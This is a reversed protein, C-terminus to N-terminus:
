GRNALLLAAAFAIFLWFRPTADTSAVETAADQMAGGPGTYFVSGFAGEATGTESAGSPMPVAQATYKSGGAGATVLAGGSPAPVAIDTWTQVPATATTTSPYFYSAPSSYGSEAITYQGTAGIEYNATQGLGSLNQRVFM